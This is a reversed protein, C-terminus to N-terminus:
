WRRLMPRRFIQVWYHGYESDKKYMYGVGLETYDKNLINACHGPSDMWQEMVQVATSCGAAINEGMASGAHPIVSSFNSGDPRTHSFKRTAEEARVAAADQLEASLKLPAAGARRREENVLELVQRAIDAASKDSVDDADKKIVFHHVLENGDHYHIAVYGDGEGYFNMRARQGDQWVIEVLEPTLSEFVAPETADIEYGNVSQVYSTMESDYDYALAKDAHLMVLAAFLAWCLAMIYKKYM